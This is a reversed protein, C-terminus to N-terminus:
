KLKNLSLENSECELKNFIPNSELEGM